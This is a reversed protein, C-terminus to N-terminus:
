PLMQVLFSIPGRSWWKVFTNWPITTISYIKTRLWKWVFCEVERLYAILQSAGWPADIKSSLWFLAISFGSLIAHIEKSNLASRQRVIMDWCFMSTSVRPTPPFLLLLDSLLEVGGHSSLVTLCGTNLIDWTPCWSPNLIFVVNCVCKLLGTPSNPPNLFTWTSPLIRFSLLPRNLQSCEANSAELWGMWFTILWFKKRRLITIEISRYNYPSYM